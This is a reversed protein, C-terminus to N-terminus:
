SITKSQLARPHRAVATSPLPPLRPQLVTARLTRRPAVAAHHVAHARSRECAPRCHGTCLHHRSAPSPSPPSCASTRQREALPYSSLSPLHALGANFPTPCTLFLSTARTDVPRIINPHPGAARTATILTLSNLGHGPRTAISCSTGTYVHTMPTHRCSTAYAAHHLQM